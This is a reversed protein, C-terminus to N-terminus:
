ECTEFSAQLIGFMVSHNWVIAARAYKASDGVGMRSPSNFISIFIDNPIPQRMFTQIQDDTPPYGVSDDRIIFNIMPCTTGLTDVLRSKGMGSSQVFVLTKAYYRGDSTYDRMQQRLGILPDNFFKGNWDSHLDHLIPSNLLRPSIGKSRPQTAPTFLEYVASWMLEENDRQEIVHELLTGVAEINVGQPFRGALGCLDQYLSM